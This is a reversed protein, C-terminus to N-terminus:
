KEIKANRAILRWLHYEPALGWPVTPLLDPHDARWLRSRHAVARQLTEHGYSLLAGSTAWRSSPLVSAPSLRAPVPAFKQLVVLAPGSAFRLISRSTFRANVM